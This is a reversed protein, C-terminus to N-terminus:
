DGHCWRGLKDLTKGGLNEMKLIIEFMERKRKGDIDVAVVGKGPQGYVILSGKPLAIALPIVALDEEGRVVVKVKRGREAMRVAKFVKEVLDETIHGAPNEATLTDYSGTFVGIEEAIYGNLKRRVTRGDLVVLDPGFNAKFSYYTVIDGVCALIKFDRDKLANRIPDVGKGEYLKGQPQALVKRLEETVRLM